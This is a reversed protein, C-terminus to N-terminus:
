GTKKFLFILGRLIRRSYTFPLRWDSQIHFRERMYDLPPFLQQVIFASKRKMGAKARFDAWANQWRFRDALPDEGATKLVGILISEPIFEAPLALFRVTESLAEVCLNLTNNEKGFQVFEEKERGSMRKLMFCIDLYWLLRKENPHHTRLHVCAIWLALPRKFSLFSGGPYPFSQSQRFLESVHFCDMERESLSWHVDILQKSGWPDVKWFIIQKRVEGGPLTPLQVFGQELLVNKLEQLHDKEILVDHDIRPRLGPYEYVQYALASGKFVLVPLDKDKCADLMDRLTKFRLAEYVAQERALQELLRVNYDTAGFHDDSSNLLNWVVPAVGERRLVEEDLLHEFFFHPGPKDEWLAIKLFDVLDRVTVDSQEESV